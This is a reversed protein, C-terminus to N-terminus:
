KLLEPHQHINGIVDCPQDVINKVGRVSRKTKISEPVTATWCGSEFLVVMPIDCVFMNDSLIIDSEYVEVGERDLLGTFQMVPTSPQYALSVGRKDHEPCDWTCPSIALVDVQFMEKKREDWARFKIQRM